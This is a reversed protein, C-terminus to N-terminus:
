YHVGLSAGDEMWQEAEREAAEQDAAEQDAELEAQARAADDWRQLQEAEVLKWQRELELEHELQAVEKAVYQAQEAERLDNEAQRFSLVLFEWIGRLTLIFNRM